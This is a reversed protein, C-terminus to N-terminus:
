DALFGRGDFVYARGDACQEAAYQEGESLPGHHERGGVDRANQTFSAPCVQPPQPPGDQQAQGAHLTPVAPDDNRCKSQRELRAQDDGHLIASLPPVSGFVTMQSQRFYLDRTDSLARLSEGLVSM